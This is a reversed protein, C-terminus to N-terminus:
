VGQGRYTSTAPEAPMRAHAIIHLHSSGVASLQDAAWRARHAGVAWRIPMRKGEDRLQAGM